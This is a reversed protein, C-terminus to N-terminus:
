NNTALKKILDYNKDKQRESDAYAAAVCEPVKVYVGRKIQFTRENVSIFVDGEDDGRSRPILIDVMKEGKPMKTKSEKNEVNEEAM